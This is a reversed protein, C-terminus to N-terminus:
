PPSMSEGERCNRISIEIDSKGSSVLDCCQRRPAQRWDVIIKHSVIRVRKIEEPNNVTANCSKEGVEAQRTYSSFIEPSGSDNMTEMYLVSPNQCPDQSLPRTNFVFPFRAWGMWFKFTELPYELLRPLMIRGYIQVSYGWSVSLTWNRRRDYCMSQQVVRDPDAKVAKMLHQLAEVRSMNPFLPAVVDLHHLSVLPTLPHAALIGLLKGHLDVQHFGPEKTLPVGLEALCAHVRQDSGYLSSYRDLCEDQIRALAKALPYSIAFGGGGYAMSFSHVMNQEACESNSGIYYYQNHDYKGLVKVLNETFFVTDDDGMVFWRVDPLGLRFTESVIRSIRIASRYGNPHTFKFRSTDESIKFPPSNVPWPESTERDLWVFGRNKGQKWWLDIYEKRWKWKDASAAIGFVIHELGTASGSSTKGSSRITQTAAFKTAGQSGIFLAAWCDSSEWCPHTSLVLFLVYFGWGLAVAGSGKWCLQRLMEFVNTRARPSEELDGKRQM